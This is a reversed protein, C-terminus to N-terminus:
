KPTPVLQSSNFAFQSKVPAAPTHFDRIQQTGDAGQGQSVLNELITKTFRIQFVSNESYQSFQHSFPCYYNDICYHYCLWEQIIYHKKFLNYCKFVQNYMEYKNVTRTSRYIDTIDSNLPMSHVTYKSNKGTPLIRPTYQNPFNYRVVM